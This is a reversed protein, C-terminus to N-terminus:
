HVEHHSHHHHGRAEEWERIQARGRRNCWERGIRTANWECRHFFFVVVSTAVVLLAVRFM